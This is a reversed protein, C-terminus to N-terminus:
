FRSTKHGTITDCSTGMNQGAILCLFRNVIEFFQLPIVFDNNIVKNLSIYISVNPLTVAEPAETAEMAEMAEMTVMGRPAAPVAPHAAPHAAPHVVPHVVPHVQRLVAPVQLVILRVLIEVLVPVVAVM